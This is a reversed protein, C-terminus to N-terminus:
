VVWGSAARKQVNNYTAESHLCRERNVDRVQNVYMRQLVYLTTNDRRKWLRECLYRCHTIQQLAADLDEGAPLLLYLTERIHTERNTGEKKDGKPEM